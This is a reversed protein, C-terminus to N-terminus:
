GIAPPPRNSYSSYLDSQQILVSKFGPAKLKQKFIFPEFHSSKHNSVVPDGSYFNVENLGPQYDVEWETIFIKQESQLEGRTAKEVGFILIYAYFVVFAIYPIHSTFIGFLFM